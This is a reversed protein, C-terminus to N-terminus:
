QRAQEALRLVNFKSTFTSLYQLNAQPPHYSSSRM